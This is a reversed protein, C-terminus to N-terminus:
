GGHFVRSLPWARLTFMAGMDMMGEIPEMILVGVHDIRLCKDKVCDIPNVNRCINKAMNDGYENVLMVHINVWDERHLGSCSQDIDEHVVNEEESFVAESLSSGQVISIANNIIIGVFFSLLM